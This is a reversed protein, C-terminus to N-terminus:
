AEGELDEELQEEENGALMDVYEPDKKKAKKATAAKGASVKVLTPGKLRAIADKKADKVSVGYIEAAAKLSEGKNGSYEGVQVDEAIVLKVLLLKLEPGSMRSIQHEGIDERGANGKPKEWGEWKVIWAQLDGWIRRWFAKLALLLMEEDLGGQRTLLVETARAIVRDYLEKRFAADQKQALERSEREALEKASPKYSYSTRKREKGWTVRGPNKGAVVLVKQAGKDGKKCEEWNYQSLVKGSRDGAYGDAVELHPEDALEARKRDVVAKGKAAFCARDTCYDKKGTCVDAFLAPSFGTRKPCLACSGAAPLLEADDLKWGVKALEMLIDQRIWRDLERVSVPGNEIRWGDFNEHLVEAQQEPALRAVLIAHGATMDGHIFLARAEPVLDKLKLRQYVYSASKGLEQAIQEVEYGAKDILRAFGDAEDLPHVDERQLNEITQVKLVQLDDLERVIAPIEALGALKSARWRREGAVLEFSGNGLQARVIIPQQVGVDRISDALQQLKVPDFGGVRRNDPHPIIKELSIQQVTESM